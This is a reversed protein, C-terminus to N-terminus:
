LRRQLGVKSVAPLLAVPRYPDIERKSTYLSSNAVKWRKPFRGSSLSLNFIHLLPKVIQNDCETLLRSYLRDLGCAKQIQLRQLVNLLDTERIPSFTFARQAPTPSPLEMATDASCQKAFASNLANAKDPFSISLLGDFVLPPLYTTKHRGSSLLKSSPGGIALPRHVRHVMALRRLCQDTFRSSRM